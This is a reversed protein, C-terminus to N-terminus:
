DGMSEIEYRSCIHGKIENCKKIKEHNDVNVFISVILIVFLCLIVAILSELKLGFYKKNEKNIRKHLNDWEKQNLEIKNDRYMELAGKTGYKHIANYYQKRIKM